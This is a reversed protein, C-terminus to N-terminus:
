GEFAALGLVLFSSPPMVVGMEGDPECCCCCCFVNSVTHGDKSGKFWCGTVGGGGEEGRLFLFLFYSFDLKDDDDALLDRDVGLIVENKVLVAPHFTM